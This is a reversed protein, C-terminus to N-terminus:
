KKKKVFQSKQTEKIWEIGLYDLLAQFKVLRASRSLHSYLNPEYGLIELIDDLKEIKQKLDKPYHRENPPEEKFILNLLFFFNLLFNVIIFFIIYNM